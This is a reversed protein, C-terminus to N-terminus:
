GELGFEKTAKEAFQNDVMEEFSLTKRVTGALQDHEMITDWEQKTIIPNIPVFGPTSLLRKCGADLVSQELNPFEKAMAKVYVSNDDRILKMSEALANCFRQVTDANEKAYSEKVMVSTLLVPGMQDAFAYSIQLDNQATAISADWEFVVGVDARGDRVAGIISGPPGEVFEVGAEKADINAFKKMAFTPSTVTNSPFRMSAVRKGKFDALSDFKTGPKSIIWMGLAGCMKAIVKMRGGEITSNVAMGSGTAAFQGRGSLAISIPEAVSGGTEVAMSLGHKEFLGQQAAVYIPGYNALKLGTTLVVEISTKAYADRIILPSLVTSMGVLGAAKLVSRRQKNALRSKM